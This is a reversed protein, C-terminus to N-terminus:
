RWKLSSFGSGSLDLNPNLPSVHQKGSRQTENILFSNLPTFYLLFLISFILLSFSSPNGLTTQIWEMRWKSLEIAAELLVARNNGRAVEVELVAQSVLAYTSFCNVSTVLGLWVPESASRCGDGGREGLQQAGEQDPSLVGAPRAESDSTWAEWVLCASQQGFCVGESVVLNQQIIKM